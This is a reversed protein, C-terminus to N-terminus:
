QLFVRVKKKTNQADLGTPNELHRQARISKTKGNIKSNASLEIAVSRPRLWWLRKHPRTDRISSCTDVWPFGHRSPLLIVKLHLLKALKAIVKKSTPSRSETKSFFTASQFWPQELNLSWFFFFVFYCFRVWWILHIRCKKRQMAM